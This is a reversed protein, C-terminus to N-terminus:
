PSSAWTHTWVRCSRTWTTKTSSSPATRRRCTCTSWSSSRCSWLLIVAEEVSVKALWYFPFYSMISAAFFDVLSFFAFVTWYILWKTDDEKHQTRIAQLLRNQARFCGWSCWFLLFCRHSVLLLLILSMFPGSLEGQGLLLGPLRFRVRQLPDLRVRGGCLVPRHHCDRCLRGLCLMFLRVLM